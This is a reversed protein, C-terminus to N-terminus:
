RLEVDLDPDAEGLAIAAAAKAGEACFRDAIEPRAHLADRLFPSFREAREIAPERGGGSDQRKVRNRYRFISHM